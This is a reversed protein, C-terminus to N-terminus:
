REERKMHNELADLPPNIQKSIKGRDMKRTSKDDEIDEDL